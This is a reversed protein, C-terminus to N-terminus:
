AELLVFLRAFVKLVVPRLNNNLTAGFLRNMRPVNMLRELSKTGNSVTLKGKTKVPAVKIQSLARVVTDGEGVFLQEGVELTATIKHEM